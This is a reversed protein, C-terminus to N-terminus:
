PVVDDPWTTASTATATGPDPVAQRQHATMAADGLSLLAFGTFFVLLLVLGGLWRPWGATIVVPPQADIIPLLQVPRHAPSAEVGRGQTQQSPHRWARAAAALCVTGAETDARRGPTSRVPLTMVGPLRAFTHSSM